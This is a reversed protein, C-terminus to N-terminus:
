REEKCVKSVYQVSVGAAEAIEALTRGENRAALIERKFRDMVRAQHRM